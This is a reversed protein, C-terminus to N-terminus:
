NQRRVSVGREVHITVGPPLSDEHAAMYEKVGTSSMKRTILDFNDTEKMYTFLAPWDKCNPMVKKAPMVIALGTVKLQSSGSATLMKLLGTEVMELAFKLKNGAEKHKLNATAQKAKINAHARFMSALRDQPTGTM